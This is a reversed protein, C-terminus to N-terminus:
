FRKAFKSGLTMILDYDTEYTKISCDFLISIKHVVDKNKGSVECDINDRVTQREVSAVKGGLVELIAGVRNAVGPKDTADILSFKLNKGSSLINSFENDVFFVTLRGSIPSNVVYGSEGDALIQKKLFQNKGLDIETKDISKVGLKFYIIALRDAFSINTLGPKFIFKWPDSMGEQSWLSTPFLFNNTVTEALLRGGLKENIGLQWVNKIRFSGYNRAVQIETDGPITINTEEGLVPDLVTVVVDGSSNQSVQSVKNFGDWSKATFKLYVFISLLFLFPILIKIIINLKGRNKKDSEKRARRQASRM